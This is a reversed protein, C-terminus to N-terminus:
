GCRKLAVDVDGVQGVRVQQCEIGEVRIVPQDEVQAVALSEADALDNLRGAADGAMGDRRFNQGRRAPSGAKRIALESFAMRSSPQFGFYVWSSSMTRVAHIQCWFRYAM